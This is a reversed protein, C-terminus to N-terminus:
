LFTYAGQRKPKKTPEKKIRQCCLLEIVIWKLSSLESKNFKIVMLIIENEVQTLNTQQSINLAWKITANKYM